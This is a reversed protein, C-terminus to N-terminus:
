DFSQVLSGVIGVMVGAIPLLMIGYERRVMTFWHMSAGALWREFAAQGEDTAEFVLDCDGRRRIVVLGMVSVSAHGFKPRYLDCIDAFRIEPFKMLLCRERLANLRILASHKATGEDCIQDGLYEM